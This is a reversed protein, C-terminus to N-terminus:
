TPGECPHSLSRSAARAGRIAAKAREASVVIGANSALRGLLEAAWGDATAPPEGLGDALCAARMRVALNLLAHRAARKPTPAAAAMLAADRLRRLAELDGRYDAQPWCEAHEDALREHARLWEHAASLQRAMRRLEAHVRRAEDTGQGAALERRHQEAALRVALELAELFAPNPSLAAIAARDAEHMM